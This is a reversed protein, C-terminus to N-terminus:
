PQPHALARVMQQLFRKPMEAETRGADAWGRVTQWAVVLKQTIPDVPAGQAQEFGADLIQKLEDLILQRREPPVSQQIHHTVASLVLETGASETSRGAQLTRAIMVPAADFGGARLTELGPWLEAVAAWVQDESAIGDV